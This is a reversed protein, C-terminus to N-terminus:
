YTIERKSTQSIAKSDIWRNNRTNTELKLSHTCLLNPGFKLTSCWGHFGLKPPHWARNEYFFKTQNANQAKIKFLEVLSWVKSAFNCFFAHWLFLSSFILSFDFIQDFVIFFQSKAVIKWPLTFNWEGRGLSLQLTGFCIVGKFRHRRPVLLKRNVTFTTM